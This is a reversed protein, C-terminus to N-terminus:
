TEELQGLLRFRDYNRFQTKVSKRATCNVLNSDANRESEKRSKAVAKREKRNLNQKVAFLALFACLFRLPFPLQLVLVCSIIKIIAPVETLM